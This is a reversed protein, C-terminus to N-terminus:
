DDHFYTALKPTLPNPDIAGARIAELRSEQDTAYQRFYGRGMAAVLGCALSAWGTPDLPTPDRTPHYGRELAAIVTAVAANFTDANMDLGVSAGNFKLDEEQNKLDFLFPAKVENLAEQLAKIYNDDREESIPPTFPNDPVRYPTKEPFLISILPDPPIDPPVNKAPILTLTPRAHPLQQDLDMNYYLTIVKELGLNRIKASHKM